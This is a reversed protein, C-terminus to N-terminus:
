RWGRGAGANTADARASVSHIGAYPFGTPILDDRGTEQALADALAVWLRGGRREDVITGIHIKRKREAQTSGHAAHMRQIVRTARAGGWGPLSVLAQWLSIRRLADTSVAERIIDAVSIGLESQHLAYLWEARERNAAARGAALVLHPTERREQESNWEDSM